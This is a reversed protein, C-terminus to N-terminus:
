RYWGKLFYLVLYGATFAVEAVWSSELHWPRRKRATSVVGVIDAALLAFAVLALLTAVVHSASM